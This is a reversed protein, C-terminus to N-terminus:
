SSSVAVPACVGIQRAAGCYALRYIECYSHKNRNWPSEIANKWSRWIENNVTRVLKLKIVTSITEIRPSNFRRGGM